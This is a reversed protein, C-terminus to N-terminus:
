SLLRRRRRGAAFIITDCITLQELRSKLVPLKGFLDTPGPYM